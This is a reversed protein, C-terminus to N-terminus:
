KRTRRRRVLWLLGLAGTGLLAATAPEPTNTFRVTFYEDEDVDLHVVTHTPTQPQVTGSIVEFWSTDDGPLTTTIVVGQEWDPLWTATIVEETPLQQTDTLVITFTINGERDPLWFDGMTTSTYTFVTQDGPLSVHEVVIESAGAQGAAFFLIPAFALWSVLKLRSM